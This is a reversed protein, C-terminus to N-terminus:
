MEHRNHAMQQIKPIQFQYQRNLNHPDHYTQMEISPLFCKNVKHM